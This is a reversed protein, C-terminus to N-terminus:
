VQVVVGVQPVAAGVVVRARQHGVRQEQGWGARHVRGRVPLGHQPQRLVPGGGVVVAADDGGLPSIKVRGEQGGGEEFVLQQAARRRPQMVGGGGPIVPPLDRLLPRVNGRGAQEVRGEQFVLQEAARAGGLPVARRRGVAGPPPHRLLGRAESVRQE